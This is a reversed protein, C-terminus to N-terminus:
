AAGNRRWSGAPRIPTTQDAYYAEWRDVGLGEESRDSSSSGTVRTTTTVATAQETKHGRIERLEEHIEKMQIM